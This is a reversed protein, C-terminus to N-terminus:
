LVILLKCLTALFLAAFLLIGALLLKLQRVERYEKLLSVINVVMAKIETSRNKM